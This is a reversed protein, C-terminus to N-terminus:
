NFRDSFSFGGDKETQGKSVTQQAQAKSVSSATISPPMTTTTQLQHSTATSRLRVFQLCLEAINADTLCCCVAFV